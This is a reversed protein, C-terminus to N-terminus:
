QERVRELELTRRASLILYAKKTALQYALEEGIGSSAGTIWIVKGAFM